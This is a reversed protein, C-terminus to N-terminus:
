EPQETVTWPRADSGPRHPANIALAATFGRIRMVLDRLELGTAAEFQEVESPDLAALVTSQAEEATPM